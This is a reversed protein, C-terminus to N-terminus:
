RRQFGSRNSLEILLRRPQCAVGQADRVRYWLVTFRPPVDIAAAGLPPSSPPLEYRLVGSASDVTASGIRPQSVIELTAPDLLNGLDNELPDVALSSSGRPLSASDDFAVPGNSTWEVPIGLAPDVYTTAPSASGLLVLRSIKSRLATVEVRGDVVLVLAETGQALLEVQEGPNQEPWVLSYTAEDKGEKDPQFIANNTSHWEDGVLSEGLTHARFMYIYRGIINGAVGILDMDVVARPALLTAGVQANTLTLHTGEYANLLVRSAPMGQLQLSWESQDWFGGEVNILAAAGSPVNVVVQSAAELQIKQLRFVNLDSRSGTLQLHPGFTSVSGTAPLVGLSVSQYRLARRVAEDAFINGQRIGVISNPFVVTKDLDLIREYVAQGNVVTGYRMRLFGGCVVVDEDAAISTDKGVVFHRLDMYKNGCVRGELTVSEFEVGTAGWVDFDSVPGFPGVGTQAVASSTALVAASLLRTFFTSM